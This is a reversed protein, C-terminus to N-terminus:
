HAVTSPMMHTLPFSSLRKLFLEYLPGGQKVNEASFDYHEVYGFSLFTFDPKSDFEVRM